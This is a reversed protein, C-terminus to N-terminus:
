YLILYIASIGSGCLPNLVFNKTFPYENNLIM